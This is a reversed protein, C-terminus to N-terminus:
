SSTSRGGPWAPRSEAFLTEVDDDVGLEAGVALATGGTREIADVTAKAGDEDTGFHVIVMAGLAALRAAIAQGIGRSAGTVLATRGTPDSM